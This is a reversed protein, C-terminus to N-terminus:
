GKLDAETTKTKLMLNVFMAALMPVPYRGRIWARVTRDSIKVTRAFGQQSFGLKQLKSWFEDGTMNSANVTEHPTLRKKRKATM